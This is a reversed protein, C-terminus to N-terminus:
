LVAKIRSALDKYEQDTLIFQSFEEANAWPDKKDKKSLEEEYRPFIHYHLHSVVNGLSSFNLRDPKFVEKIAEAAEMLESFYKQQNDGSLETIDSVCNKHHLVCYGQFYQHEGIVLISTDFEHVFPAFSGEKAMKVRDCIICM